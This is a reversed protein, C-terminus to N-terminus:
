SCRESWSGDACREFSFGISTGCAEPSFRVSRLAPTEVEKRLSEWLRGAEKRACEYSLSRCGTLYDIYAETGDESVMSSGPWRILRVTEGDALHRVEVEMRESPDCRRIGFWFGLEEGYPALWMELEVDGAQPSNWRYAERHFVFPDDVSRAHGTVLSGEPAAAAHVLADAIAMADRRDRPCVFGRLGELRLDKGEDDLARFGLGVCSSCCLCCPEENVMGITCGGESCPDEEPPNPWFSRVQDPSLQTWREGALRGVAGVVAEVSACGPPRMWWRAGIIGAAVGFLGTAVAAGLEIRRLRHGRARRLLRVALVSLYVAMSAFGGWVVREAMSSSTGGQVLQAQIRVVWRYSFGSLVAIGVASALIEVKLWRRSELSM